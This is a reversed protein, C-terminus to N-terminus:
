LCEKDKINGKLVGKECLQELQPYKEKQLWLKM